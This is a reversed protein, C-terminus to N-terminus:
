GHAVGQPAGALARGLAERVDAAVADWSRVAPSHRIRDADWDHGLVDALAETLAPVNCVPVVRGTEPTILDPVAGVDTAVVPRGAALSELVANPCGERYSALVSADAAAFYLGVRDHPQPGALIVRGALGLADIRRRLARENPGGDPDAGVLVLRVDAPLAELVELHGKRPGLHAVTVLLRGAEPLGLARRAAVRDALAFRDLDVGNGIVSLRDPPAGLEVAVRAMRSDVSIVAAAHQLAESVQRRQAPVDLCPYIKGRLTIAYPLHRERALRAVGVGDPWAFHADLLDVPRQRLYADLWRGLGRAYLRGDHDKLLGPVYLFRPRHVTLGGQEDRLPGLQGRLRSYLPFTPVPSAVELDTLRGLAALRQLVFVGWSPRGPGPFCYSLSLVKM